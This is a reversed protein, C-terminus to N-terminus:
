KEVPNGDKNYETGGIFYTEGDKNLLSQAEEETDVVAVYAIDLTCTMTTDKSDTHKPVLRLLIEQEGNISFASHNSPIEIVEIIWGCKDKSRITGIQAGDKDTNNNTGGMFYFYMNSSNEVYRYKIVIYNGTNVKGDTYNGTTNKGGTINWYKNQASNYRNYIVDNEYDYCYKNLTAGGGYVDMSELPSYRNINGSVNHVALEEGCRTCPAYYTTSGDEEPKSTYAGVDAHKICKQANSTDTESFVYSDEVVVGAISNLDDVFAIYEIDFYANDKSSDNTNDSIKTQQDGFPRIQLQKITADASFLAPNNIRGAVDVVVTNWVGDDTLEIRFMTGSLLTNQKTNVHFQTRKSAINIDRENARYKIVMYRGQTNPGVNLNFGYWASKNVTFGSFRVFGVDNEESYEKKFLGEDGVTPITENRFLEVGHIFTVKKSVGSRITKFCESCALDDTTNGNNWHSATTHNCHEVDFNDTVAQYFQYMAKATNKTADDHDSELVRGLYENITKTVILKDGTEDEVTITYPVDFMSAPINSIKVVWSSGSRLVPTATPQEDGPKKVTASLTGEGTYNISIMAVINDPQLSLNMSVGKITTGQQVSGSGYKIETVANIPNTNRAFVDVNALNSTADEFKLQAMAGWNLLARMSDHYEVNKSDALVANAYKAVTYDEVLTNGGVKVTVTHTMQSPALPVKVWHRNDDATGCTVTTSVTEQTCPDTVEAVVDTAEVGESVKYYFKLSVKGSTSVQVDTLKVGVQPTEGETEAAVAGIAVSLLLVLIIVSAFIAIKKFGKM